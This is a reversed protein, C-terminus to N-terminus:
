WFEETHSSGCSARLRSRFGDITKGKNTSHSTNKLLNSYKTIQYQKLFLHYTDIKLKYKSHSYLILMNQSGNVLYNLIQVKKQQFIPQWRKEQQAIYSVRELYCPQMLNTNTTRGVLWVLTACHRKLYTRACPRLGSVDLPKLFADSGTPM